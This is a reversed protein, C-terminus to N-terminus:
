EQVAAVRFGLSIYRNEPTNRGRDAPRCGRPDHHWSGGRFVRHSAGPAGLPDAAPSSAYYKEDYGDACWEWVNGLMDYLGWANPLKQGVPHTKRESNGDSWAHEGLKSADDGFPYLTTSKARCAYEWEAETPLRYGNGGALTVETGDIRYFPTRKERESLKNCFKVADLWSVSEVPPDDSGKFRSPNDGMVARYQDQTVEHIGLYFARSLRVSHAPQEDDFSARNSGPFLRMLQDVQDKTTGMLFEGAEIRVLRIGISNTWGRMPQPSPPQTKQSPAAPKPSEVHTSPSAPKSGDAASPSPSAAKKDGGQKTVPPKPIYTVKLPTEQRRQIQFTQTEVVLDGRTVVLDHPGTHLTIPAGLNEIRIEQSDIRVMMNPDTGSIKVTGNDTVIYIIVGLFALLPLAAVYFWLWPMNRPKPPAGVLQTSVAPEQPRSAVPTQRPLREADIVGAPKARPKSKSSEAGQHDAKPLRGPDSTSPPSDPRPEVRPAPKPRQGAETHSVNRPREPEQAVPLTPAAERAQSSPRAAPIKVRQFHFGIGRVLQDVHHHFDRGQDVEIVNRFTLLALSPPLDAEGPMRAHDILIPIVPQNRHLASELEIRVFDKPDDLRRHAGTEGAWKTGIVALVVDCQGVAVDIHERFDEGFPISDIDMFVADSGFHARLRDFIRGAVGISDQRRYSLFIKSM